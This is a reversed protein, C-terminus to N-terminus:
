SLRKTYLEVKFMEYSMGSPVNSGAPTESTISPVYNLHETIRVPVRSIHL